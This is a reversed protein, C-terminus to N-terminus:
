EIRGAHVEADGCAVAPCDRGVSGEVGFPTRHDSKGIGVDESPAVTQFQHGVEAPLIEGVAAIHDFVM